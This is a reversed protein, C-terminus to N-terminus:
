AGAMARARRHCLGDRRAAPQHRRHGLRPEHLQRDFSIRARPYLDVARAARRRRRDFEAGIAKRVVSRAGDCGVLYRCSFRRVAGTQLDRLAASASTIRSGSTKSWPGASSASARIRPRMNSCSLNLSFRTSAIRRSRRRGTAIRAMRGAHLSRPPLSYPIRTLEQGTFTTRYSIDHPYDAPLGADRIKEAVGLRRFIEMTRAAVHNCKPEPPAAPARTEVVTVDIGRWALDIALTLGVPGAGVILVDSHTMDPMQSGQPSGTLVNNKQFGADQRVVNAAALSRGFAALRAKRRHLRGCYWSLRLPM